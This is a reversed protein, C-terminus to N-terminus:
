RADGALPVGASKLVEDFVPQPSESTGFSAFPYPRLSLLEYRDADNLAKWAVGPMGHWRLWALGSLVVLGIVMVVARPRPRSKLRGVKTKLATSEEM